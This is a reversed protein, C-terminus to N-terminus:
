PLVIGGMGAGSEQIGFALGKREIFWDNLFLITITNILSAGIGYLVSQTLILHWVETSFASALLSVCTLVIGCILAIRRKTQYKQFVIFAPPSSLYLIGLATTGM